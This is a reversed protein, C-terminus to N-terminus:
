HNFFRLIEDKDEHYKQNFKDYTERNMENLAFYKEEITDIKKQVELLKIKYAKEEDKASQNLKDFQQILGYSIPAVDEESITYSNPLYFSNIRAAIM